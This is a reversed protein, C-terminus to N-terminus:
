QIAVSVTNSATGGQKLYLSLNLGPPLGAPILINAQYLGIFGPTLGAFATPIEVGGIVASVLTSAVNLKGSPVVAGFGTAYIVLAGTGRLVPNSPTNLSNDQNTIAAQNSNILFIAPAVALLTINQQTTGQPSSVQLIVSGASTDVPVQANIQFPTAMLMPATKGNIAVTGGSLGAGFISILGGPAIDGTFSAANVVGGGTFSLSLPALTWQAGSRIIEVSSVTIPSQAGGPSLDTLTGGTGGTSLDTQYPGAAKADCWRFYLPLLPLTQGCAGSASTLSIPSDATVLFGPTLPAQPLLRAAGALSGQALYGGVRSQEGAPDAIVVDGNSAIGTAVVFAAGSNKFGISLLVPSGAAVLDRIANLDVQETRVDVSGGAFMGVRWLNPTQRIYGDCVKNGEADTRCLQKLFQDLTAPDALGNPQPLESRLQHYRVISAAATVLAGLNGESLAPFNALSFAASRASFTIVSHGAQATGLALGEAMPLRLMTSARGNADTISSAPAVQAGPSVRWTVTQAPVPNGNQDKVVVVIPQALQAGPAGTQGDGNVVSVALPASAANRVTYSARATNASNASDTAVVTVTGTASSAPVLVDWAYSGSNVGVLFDPQGSQSVRVTAGNKFGGAVLHVPTGSM